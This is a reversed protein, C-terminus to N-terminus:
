LKRRTILTSLARLETADSGPLLSRDLVDLASLLHHDAQERAWLRGGALELLETARAVEAASLPRNVSYLARLRRAPESKMALVAVVPLSKKRTRLDAGVPKGTVAPDGWIGLLDDALQFALGLRRGFTDLAAVQGDTGGAALAGLACAAGFLAGTKGEAMELCEALGVGARREFSCDLHQGECLEAIAAGLRRVSEALGPHDHRVLVRSTMALMADGAVIADPVGFAKWATPRHRRTEDKDVVDDHVLSFNHALEVAAGAAVAHEALGGTARAAALALAPRLAKGTGGPRGAGLADWWGLQYGCILRMRPPLDQLCAQLEADILGRARELLPGTRNEDHDTTMASM